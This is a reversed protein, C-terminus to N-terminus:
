YIPSPDLSTMLSVRCNKTGAVSRTAKRAPHRTDPSSAQVGAAWDAERTQERGTGLLRSSTGLWIGYGDSGTPSVSCRCGLGDHRGV